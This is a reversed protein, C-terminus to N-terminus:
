DSDKDPDPPKPLRQMKMGDGYDITDVKNIQQLGRTVETIRDSAAVIVKLKVITEPDLDPRERLLMQANGGIVTLISNIEHNATIATEKIGELKYKEKMNLDEDSFSLLGDSALSISLLACLTNLFEDEELVTREGQQLGLVAGFVKDGRRLPLTFSHYKPDGEFTMYATTLGRNRRLDSLLDKELKELYERYNRTSAHTITTTLSFEDDWLFLTVAKLKMFQSLEALAIRVASSVDDTEASGVALNRLIDFKDKNNDM